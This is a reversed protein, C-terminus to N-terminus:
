RARPNPLVKEGTQDFFEARVVWQGLEGFPAQNEPEALQELALFMM